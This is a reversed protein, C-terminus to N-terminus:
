VVMPGAKGLDVNFSAYPADSDPTFAVQAPSGRMLMFTRNAVMGAHANGAWTGLISVTPFFFKYAQIARVFDAEDYAERVTRETPFGGKFEYEITEV